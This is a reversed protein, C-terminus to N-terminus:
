FDRFDGSVGTDAKGARPEASPTGNRFRLGHPVRGKVPTRAKDLGPAPASAVKPHSVSPLIPAGGPASPSSKAEMSNHGDVM